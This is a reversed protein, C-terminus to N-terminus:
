RRRRVEVTVNLTRTTCAWCCCRVLSYQNSDEGIRGKPPKDITWLHESMLGALVRPYTTIAWVADLAPETFARCTQALAWATKRDVEIAIRAVIEEILLARHM